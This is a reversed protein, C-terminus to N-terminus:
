KANREKAYLAERDKRKLRKIEPLEGTRPCGSLITMIAFWATRPEIKTLFHRGICQRNYICMGCQYFIVEIIDEVSEVQAEKIGEKDCQMIITTAIDLMHETSMGIAALADALCLKRVTPQCQACKVMLTDVLSVPNWDEDDHYKQHYKIVNRVRGYNGCTKGLKNGDHDYGPRELYIAKRNEATEIYYGTNVKCPCIIVKPAIEEVYQRGCKPCTILYAVVTSIEGVERPKPMRRRPVKIPRLDM